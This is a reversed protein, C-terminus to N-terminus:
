SAIPLMLWVHAINGPPLALGSGNGLAQATGGDLENPAALVIDGPAIVARHMRMPDFDADCAVPHRDAPPVDDDSM